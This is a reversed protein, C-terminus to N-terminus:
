EGKLETISTNMIKNGDVEEDFLEKPIEESIFAIQGSFHEFLEILFAEFKYCADSWIHFILEHDAPFFEHQACSPDYLAHVISQFISTLYLMVAM